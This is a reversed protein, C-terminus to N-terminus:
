STNPRCPITALPLKDFYMAFCCSQRHQQGMTTMLEWKNPNMALCLASEKFSPVVHEAEMLGMMMKGYENNHSPFFLTQNKLKHTILYAATIQV